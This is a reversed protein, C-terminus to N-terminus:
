FSALVTCNRFAIISACLVLGALLLWKWPESWQRVVNRCLAVGHATAATDMALPSRWRFNSPWKRKSKLQPTARCPYKQEWKLKSIQKYVSKDHNIRPGSYKAHKPECIQDCAKLVVCMGTQIKMMHKRCKKWMKEHVHVAFETKVALNRAVPLWFANISRSRTGSKATVPACTASHISSTQSWNSTFKNFTWGPFHSSVFYNPTPREKWPLMCHLFWLFGFHITFDHSEGTTTEIMIESWGNTLSSAFYRIGKIILTESPCSIPAITEWCGTESHKLCINRCWKWQKRVHKRPKWSSLSTEQWSKPKNTIWGRKSWKSPTCM